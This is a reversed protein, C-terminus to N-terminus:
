ESEVRYNIIHVVSGGLFILKGNPAVTFTEQTTGDVHTLVVDSNDGCTNAYQINGSGVTLKWCKQEVFSIETFTQITIQKPNTQASNSVRTEVFLTFLMLGCLLLYFKRNNRLNGLKNKMM